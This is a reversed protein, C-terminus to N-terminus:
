KYKDLGPVHAATGAAYWGESDWLLIQMLIGHSRQGYTFGMVVNAGGRRAAKALKHKLQELSGNQRAQSAHIRGRAVSAPLTGETFFVGDVLTGRHGKLEYDTM